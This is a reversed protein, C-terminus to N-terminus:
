FFISVIFANVNLLGVLVAHRLLQTDAEPPRSDIIMHEIYSILHLLCSGTSATVQSQDIGGNILPQSENTTFSARRSGYADHKLRYRQRAIRLLNASSIVVCVALLVISAQYRISEFRPAYLIPEDNQRDIAAALYILATTLIPALWGFLHYLWFYRRSRESSYCISVMLAM